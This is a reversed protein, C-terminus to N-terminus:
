WCGLRSFNLPGPTGHIRCLADREQEQEQGERGDTLRRDLRLAILFRAPIWVPGDVNGAFVAVGVRAPFRDAANRLKVVVSCPVRQAPHVLLHVAFPAMGVKDKGVHARSARIAVRVDVAALEARIALLTVRYFAPFDLVLLELLM